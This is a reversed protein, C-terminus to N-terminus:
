AAPDSTPWSKLAAEVEAVLQPLEESATRWVVDEDIQYYDHVLIHRMGVMKEWRLGPIRSRGEDSVRAAAEGIEQVCHVVGRALLRDTDLDSRSKGAMFGLAERAAKLMHLVRVRDDLLSSRNSPPM